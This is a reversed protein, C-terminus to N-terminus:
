LSQRSWHNEVSLSKMEWSAKLLTPPRKLQWVQSPLGLMWYPSALSTGLTRHHVLAVRRGKGRIFFQEVGFALQALPSFSQGM